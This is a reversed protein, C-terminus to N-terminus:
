CIFADGGIQANITVSNAIVFLNGDVIYDITIDDGTLYVDNQKYNEDSFNQLSSDVASTEQENDASTTVVTNQEANADNNLDEDEARVVPLALSIILIISLAIISFKKKLM